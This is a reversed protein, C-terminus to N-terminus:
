ILKLEDCPGTQRILVVNIKMSVISDKYAIAYLNMCLNLLILAM